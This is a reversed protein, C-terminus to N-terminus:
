QMLVHSHSCSGVANIFRFPLIWTSTSYFHHSLQFIPVIWDSIDSPLHLSWLVVSPLSFIWPPFTKEKWWPFLWALASPRPCKLWSIVLPLRVIMVYRFSPPPHYDLFFQLFVFLWLLASRLPHPTIMLSSFSSSCDYSLEHLPSLWTPTSPLSIILFVNLFPSVIM